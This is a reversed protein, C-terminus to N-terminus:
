EGGGGGADGGSFDGGDSSSGADYIPFFGSDSSNITNINMQFEDIVFYIEKPDLKSDLKTETLAGTKLNLSVTKKKSFLYIKKNILAMKPSTWRFGTKVRFNEVGTKLSISVVEKTTDLFIISDSFIHVNYLVKAIKWKIHGTEYDVMSTSISGWSSTLVFIFNEIRSIGLIKDEFATNWEKKQDHSNYKFLEKKESVIIIGQQKM